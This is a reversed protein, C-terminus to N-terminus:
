LIKKVKLFDGERQPAESLLAETYMGTEHPNADERVVNKMLAPSSHAQGSTSSPGVKEIQAVYSIIADLRTVLSEKEEETVHLRSLEALKEIDTKTIM